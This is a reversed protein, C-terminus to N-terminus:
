KMCFPIFYDEFITKWGSELSKLSKETIDGIFEVRYTLTTKGAEEEFTFKEYSLAPGGFEGSLMGRIQLSRPYDVGIVEGWVLGEGEGFDEYMKGGLKTEIHFSKTRSNTYFDSTWWQNLQNFFAEWVQEKAKELRYELKFSKM